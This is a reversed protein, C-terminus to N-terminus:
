VRPTTASSCIDASAIAIRSLPMVRSSIARQVAAIIAEPGEPRPAHMTLFGGRLERQADSVANLAAVPREYDDPNFPYQLIPYPYGAEPEVM